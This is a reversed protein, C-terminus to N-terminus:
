QLQYLLPLCSIHQCSLRVLERHQGDVTSSPIEVLKLQERGSVFSIFCCTSAPCCSSVLIVSFNMVFMSTSGASHVFLRHSLGDTQPLLKLETNIHTHTFKHKYQSIRHVYQLDQKYRNIGATGESKCSPTGTQRDRFIASMLAGQFHLRLIKMARKYSAAAHTM